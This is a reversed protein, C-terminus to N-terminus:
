VRKGSAAVEPSPTWWRSHSSSEFVRMVSTPTPLSMAMTSSPTGYPLTKLCSVYRAREIVLLAVGAATPRTLCLYPRSVGSGFACRVSAFDFATACSATRTAARVDEAAGWVGGCGARRARRAARPALAEGEARRLAVPDDAEHRGLVALQGLHLAGPILAAGKPVDRLVGLLETRLALGEAPEVSADLRRWRLLLLLLPPSSHPAHVSGRGCGRDMADM